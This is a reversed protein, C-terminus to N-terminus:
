GYTKKKNNKVMVQIWCDEAFEKAFKKLDINKSEKLANRKELISFNKAKRLIGLRLDTGYTTPNLASTKKNEVALDRYAEFQDDKLSFEGIKSIVASFVSYIKDNIGSVKIKIGDIESSM